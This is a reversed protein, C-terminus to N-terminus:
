RPRQPNWYPITCRLHAMEHEILSGAQGMAPVGGRAVSSGRHRPAQPPSPLLPPRPHHHNLVMGRGRSRETAGWAVGPHPRRLPHPHARPPQQNAWPSQPHSDRRGGPDVASWLIRRGPPWHERSPPCLSDRAAAVNVLHRINTDSYFGQTSHAPTLRWSGQRDPACETDYWDSPQRPINGGIATVMPYGPVHVRWGANDTLNWHLVNVRYPAMVTLLLEM